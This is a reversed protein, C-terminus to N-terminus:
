PRWGAVAAPHRLDRETRFGLGGLDREADEPRYDGHVEVKLCRVRAAWATNRRLVEREAGEIDMKVYDVREGAPVAAMLSDLSVARATRGGGGVRGSLEGQGDPVEWAVEGDECWVAGEILSGRPWGRLNRRCVDANGPDLEVGVVEAGPWLAMFDLMTTGINAGLDWVRAVGRLGAREPPLHYRGRFTDILAWVDDTGPRARVPAGSLRRVRVDAERRRRSGPRLLRSLAVVDGPGQGVAALDGLHRAVQRSGRLRERLTSARDTIM